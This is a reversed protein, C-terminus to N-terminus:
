KDENRCQPFHEYIYDSTLKRTENSFSYYPPKKDSGAAFTVVGCLCSGKRNLEGLM